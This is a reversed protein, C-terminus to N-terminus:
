LDELEELVEPLGLPIGRFLSRTGGIGGVPGPGM